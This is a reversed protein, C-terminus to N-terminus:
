DSQMHVIKKKIFYSMSCGSHKILVLSSEFSIVIHLITSSVLIKKDQPFLSLQWCSHLFQSQIQLSVILRVTDHISTPSVLCLCFITQQKNSAAIVTGLTDANEQALEKLELEWLAVWFPGSLVQVCLSNGNCFFFGFRLFDWDKIVPQLCVQGVM